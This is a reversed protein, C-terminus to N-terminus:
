PARRADCSVAPNFAPLARSAPACVQYIRTSYEMYHAVRPPVVIYELTLESDAALHAASHSAGAFTRGPASRLRWANIARVHEVGEFLAAM